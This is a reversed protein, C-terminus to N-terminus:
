KLIGLLGIDFPLFRNDLTSNSTNDGLNGYINAGWAYVKGSDTALFASNVTMGACLDYGSLRDVLKATNFKYATTTACQGSDNNGWVMTENTPTLALASTNGAYIARAKLPTKIGLCYRVTMVPTASNTNTGNGLQGEYNRGWTYVYNNAKNIAMSFDGGAAIAKPTFPLSIQVPKEECGGFSGKGLQGNTNLGWAYLKNTNSLALSHKWGAAISTIDSLGQIMQPTPYTNMNNGKGVQSYQNHGWAWVTGDKKLALCHYYGASIAVVDSLGTVKVPTNSNGYLGNGLQGYTGSGWTWVTGDSKLAASFSLGCSVDVVNSLNPIIKFSTQDGRSPDGLQGLQNKGTSYVHGNSTLALSFDTGGEFKIFSENLGLSPDGYINYECGNRWSTREKPPLDRKMKFFAKGISLGTNLFNKTFNFAMHNMSYLSDDYDNMNTVGNWATMRTSGLTGVSSNLLLKYSLNNSDEPKANHCSGQFVFEPTNDALNTTDGSKLVDSAGDSDGHSSWVVLGPNTKKWTDIVNARTCPSVEPKPSAVDYIRVFNSGSDSLKTKIAEGILTNKYGESLPEMPLLVTNRYETTSTTTYHILRSLIKDLDSIVGYYPIRGVIVENYNDAGGTKFDDSFTGYFGDGNIDWNGTLDAYYFDTPVDRVMGLEGNEKVERIPYAHKMPVDGTAPHPNGILLVYTIKKVLYNAKLWKRINESATNGTGGGWTEETIIEPTFGLRQKEKVFNTLQTSSDAISKTTIIVYNAPDSGAASVYIGNIFLCAFLMVSALSISLLRKM